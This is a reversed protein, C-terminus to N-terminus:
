RWKKKQFNISTLSIQVRQYFIQHKLRNRNSDSWQIKNVRGGLPFRAHLSPEISRICNTKEQPQIGIIKEFSGHCSRGHEPFLKFFIEKQCLKSPKSMRKGNGIGDIRNRITYAEWAARYNKWASQPNLERSIYSKWFLTIWSYMWCVVYGSSKHIKLLRVINLASQVM